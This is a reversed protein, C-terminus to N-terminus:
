WYKEQQRTQRDKRDIGTAMIAAIALQDITIVIGLWSVAWYEAGALKAFNIAVVVVETIFRGTIFLDM